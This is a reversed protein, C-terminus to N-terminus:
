LYGMNVPNYSLLVHGTDANRIPDLIIGRGGVLVLIYHQM